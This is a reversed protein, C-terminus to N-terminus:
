HVHVHRSGRLIFLHVYPQAGGVRVVKGKVYFREVAQQYHFNKGITILVVAVAVVVGLVMPDQKALENKLAQFTGESTDVRKREVEIKVTKCM